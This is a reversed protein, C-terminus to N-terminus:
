DFTTQTAEDIRDSVLDFIDTNESDSIVITPVSNVPTLTANDMDNPTVLQFWYVPNLKISASAPVDKDLVITNSGSSSAAVVSYFEDVEFELRVPYTVLDSTNYYTGTLVIRDDDLDGYTQFSVTVKHYTGQPIDFDWASVPNNPDFNVNLGGPYDNMFYVDDGEDRQGDFSFSQIVINGGTFTLNGGVCSSRNIDMKFKVETPLKWKKDKNCSAALVVFLAIILKIYPKQMVKGKWQKNYLHVLYVFPQFPYIKKM